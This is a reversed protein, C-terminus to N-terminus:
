VDYVESRRFRIFSLALTSAFVLQNYLKKVKLRKFAEERDIEGARYLYLTRYVDDNAVPGFAFDYQPGSYTGDRNDCVFDLWADCVGDFKVVECLPFAAKEDIEYVSVTPAGVGRNQTVRMSFAIAQDINTTTYFGNGFDLERNPKLIKPERVEVNSGHYVTM